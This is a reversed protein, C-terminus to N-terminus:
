SGGAKKFLSVIKNRLEPRPPSPVLKACKSWNQALIAKRFRPYRTAGKDLLGAVGSGYTFRLIAIKAEKPYSDFDPVRNRVNNLDKKVHSKADAMAQQETYECKLCEERDESKLTKELLDKYWHHTRNQQDSNKPTDNAVINYQREICSAKSENAPLNPCSMKLSRAEGVSEILRGIGITARGETDQYFYPTYGETVLLRSVEKIGNGTSDGSNSATAETDSLSVDAQQPTEKESSIGELWPQASWGTEGTEYEIEWWTYKAARKPGNVVVGKEKERATAAAQHGRGPGVRINLASTTEVTDGSEFKPSPPAKGEPIEEKRGSTSEPKEETEDGGTEEGKKDRRYRIAEHLWYGNADNVNPDNDLWWQLTERNKADLKYRIVYKIKDRAPAPPPVSMHQYDHKVWTEFLDELERKRLEATSPRDGNRQIVRGQIRGIDGRHETQQVVHTLEHAMLQRGDESGPRYEGEGFYVDSGHTFAKADLQRNLDVAEGGTHVRVDGFDRGFRPEFFSRTAPPLPKGGSSSALAREVSESAQQGGGAGGSRPSEDIRPTRDQAPIAAPRSTSTTRGGGFGGRERETPSARRAASATEGGEDSVPPEQRDDSARMVQEAVREAEREAPDDPSSVELKPQVQIETGLRRVTRPEAAVESATEEAERELGPDPDIAPNADAKPLMSVAGETQQRVHTLEHALVRQGESSEPEYEGSNFAVHNGVAFARADISDAAAAARTGTHVQVDSFDGGMKSEMERQVTEDMSRGLSSIVSRVVDPVGADGAPGDERNRAVNREESAQNRREIDAPVAEPREERRERFAQMDRPKGMAEVTMGEDVWRSVRETGFDAELLQLTGAQGRHLDIGYRAGLAQRDPGPDVPVYEGESTDIGGGGPERWPRSRNVGRREGPTRRTEAVPEIGDTPGAEAPRRDSRSSPRERSGDAVEGSDGNRRRERSARHSM